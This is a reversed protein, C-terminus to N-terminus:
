HRICLRLCPRLDALYHLALSSYALDVSNSPLTLGDLDGQRYEIAEDRTTARAEALMKISLDIGLVSEAGLERAARCFWGYGCGLDVVARGNLPPLM